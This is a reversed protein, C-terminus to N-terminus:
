FLKSENEINLVMLTLSKNKMCKQVVSICYLLIYLVIKTM